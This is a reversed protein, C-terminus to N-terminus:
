LNNGCMITGCFIFSLQFLQFAKFLTQFAIKVTDCVRFFPPLRHCVFLVLFHGEACISLLFFKETHFLFLFKCFCTTEYKRNECQKNKPNNKMSPPRRFTSPSFFFYFIEGDMQFNLFRKRVKTLDFYNM